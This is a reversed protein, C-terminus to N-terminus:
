KVKRLISSVTGETDIPYELTLYTSNKDGLFSGCNIMTNSYIEVQDRSYLNMCNYKLNKFTNYCIVYKTGRSTTEIHSGIGTHVNYFQCHSIYVEDCITGDYPLAHDAKGAFDTHIAEGNKASLPKLQILDYFESGQTLKQNRFTMSEVKVNKVAIFTVAHKGSYNEFIGNKLVINQCHHFRMIPANTFSGAPDGIWEGGSITVNKGQNYGGTTTQADVAHGVQIMTGATFTKFRRIITNDAFTLTTNSYVFLGKSLYYKGSPVYVKIAKKENKAINLAKQIATSDSVVDTGNANFPPQTVDINNLSVWCGYLHIQEGAKYNSQFKNGAEFYRLLKKNYKGWYSTTGKKLSWKNNSQLRATWAVLAKGNSSFKLKAGSLVTHAQGCKVNKVVTKTSNSMSFHYIVKYTGAAHVQRTGM